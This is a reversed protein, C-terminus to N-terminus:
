PTVLKGAAKRTLLVFSSLKRTSSLVLKSCAILFNNYCTPFCALIGSTRAQSIYYFANGKYFHFLLTGVSEITHRFEKEKIGKRVNTASIAKM